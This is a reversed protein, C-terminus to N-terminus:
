ITGTAQWSYDFTTDATPASLYATFGTTSATIGVVWVNDAGAGTKIVSASVAPTASFAVGFTVTFSTVGASLDGTGSQLQGTALQASSSVTQYEYDQLTYYDWNQQLRRQASEATARTRDRRYEAFQQAYVRNSSWKQGSNAALNSVALGNIGGSWKEVLTAPVSSSLAGLNPSITAIFRIGDTIVTSPIVESHLILISNGDGGASAPIVKYYDPDVQTFDAGMASSYLIQLNEIDDITAGLSSASVLYNKQDAVIDIEFANCWNPQRPLRASSPRGTTEPQRNSVVHVSV